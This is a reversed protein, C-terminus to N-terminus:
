WEAGLDVQVSALCSTFTRGGVRDRAELVVVKSIGHPLSDSLQRAAVLGAFGAGVVVVVGNGTGLCQPM